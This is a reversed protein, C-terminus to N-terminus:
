YNKNWIKILQYSSSILRGDPLQNLSWISNTDGVLSGVVGRTTVNWFKISKDTSGSALLGDSLQIVTNVDSSHGTLTAFLIGGSGNLDWIKITADYSGSVLKGSAIQTITLVRGGHGSLTGLVQNTSLSWIKITKDYSGSALTGDALQYM